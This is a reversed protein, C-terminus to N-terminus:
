WTDYVLSTKDGYEFYLLDVMYRTLNVMYRTLNVMYRTLNVMYGTFNVMYGTFNVMYRTFAGHSKKDDTSKNSQSIWTIPSEQIM